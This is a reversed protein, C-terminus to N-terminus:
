GEVPTQPKPNPTQPKPNPTQTAGAHRARLADLMGVVLARASDLGEPREQTLDRLGGSRRAREISELDLKWWARADMFPPAGYLESFTLPAAPFVFTTDGKGSLEHALSVLDDGPAGFGHMLVLVRRTVGSAAPVVTCDLAGLRKLEM